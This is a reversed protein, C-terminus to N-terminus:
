PSSRTENVRRSFRRGPWAQFAPEYRLFEALDHGAIQNADAAKRRLWTEDIGKWRSFDARSEDFEDYRALEGAM